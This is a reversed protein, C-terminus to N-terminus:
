DLPAGSVVCTTNRVSADSVQGDTIICFGKGDAVTESISGATPLNADYEGVVPGVRTQDQAGGLEEASM